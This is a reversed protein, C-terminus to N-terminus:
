QQENDEGSKKNLFGFMNFVKRPKSSMEVPEDEGNQGLRDGASVIIAPEDEESPTESNSRPRTQLLRACANTVSAATTMQSQQQSTVANHMSLGLTDALTTDLLSTPQMSFAQLTNFQNITEPSLEQEFENEYRTDQDKMIVGQRVSECRDSRQIGTLGQMGGSEISCECESGGGRIV